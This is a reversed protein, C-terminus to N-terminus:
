AQCFSPAFHSFSSEASHLSRCLSDTRILTLIVAASHLLRPNPVMARGCSPLGTLIVALTLTSTAWLSSVIAPACRTEMDQSIERAISWNRSCDPSSEAGWSGSGRTGGRVLHPQDRTSM